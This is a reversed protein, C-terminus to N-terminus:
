SMMEGFNEEIYVLVKQYADYEPSSVGVSNQYGILAAILMDRVMRGEGKLKFVPTHTPATKVTPDITKDIIQEIPKEFVMNEFNKFEQPADLQKAALNVAEDLVPTFQRNVRAMLSNEVRKVAEEVRKDLLGSDLVESKIQQAVDKSITGVMGPGRKDLMYRTCQAVVADFIKQEDFEFEMNM